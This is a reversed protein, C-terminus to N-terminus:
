ERMQVCADRGRLGALRAECRQGSGPSNPHEGHKDEWLQNAVVFQQATPDTLWGLEPSKSRYRGVPGSKRSPEIETVSRQTINKKRYNFNKRSRPIRMTRPGSGMRAGSRWRQSPHTPIKMLSNGEGGNRKRPEAGPPSRQRQTRWRLEHWGLHRP